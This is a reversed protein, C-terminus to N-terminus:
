LWPLDAGAAIRARLLDGFHDPDKVRVLEAARPLHLDCLRSLWFRLAAARLLVPWAAHEAEGLPRKADYARLLARTKAPDLGLDDALCWDNACVALDFLLVDNGAFYFDIVGSIRGDDFLVNDRFLDAHIVGRAIAMARSASQFRLESEIRARQRAGLFPMVSAAAERWWRPGRPNDLRAPYSSGATHLDAILSGLAACHQAAPAELAAGSLRSVILAPKGHLTGLYGGDRRAVPAPCPIACRALHAMLGVYFALERRGLREFLTLVYRGHTTTLFYNTNEIGTAVGELALPTGIAYRGLFAALEATRVPTFVAM